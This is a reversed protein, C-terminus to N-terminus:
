DRAPPLAGRGSGLQALDQEMEAIRTGLRAARALAVAREQHRVAAALDGSRARAMGARMWPLIEWPRQRTAEEFLPAADDPRNSDMFANALRLRTVHDTPDADLRSRLITVAERLLRAGIEPDDAPSWSLAPFRRRADDIGKPFQAILYFGDRAPAVWIPRPQVGAASRLLRFFRRDTVHRVPTPADRAWLDVGQRVGYEFSASKEHAMVRKGERSPQRAVNADNLGLRDLTRFGTRYPILGAAGVAIHTDAPLAGSRVLAVLRDANPEMSELFLKLEERRTGVFHDTIGRLLATYLELVQRTGPLSGCRTVEPDLFRNVGATEVRYGPFGPLYRDPFQRGTERPLWVLGLLVLVAHAPVVWHANRLASATRWGSALLLFAFPFYLDLPRYEFHDGGIAAIGLAHPVVVAATVLPFPAPTRRVVLAFAPIWLWASYEVLFAAFYLAGMSWWSQGGVKAYYTNPLWAGYYALRLAFHAAVVAGWLGFRYLWTRYDLRGRAACWAAATGLATLSMLVADPRTLAALALLAASLPAGAPRGADIRECEVVLRLAGAVVLVELLRTELGSTSWVAVSRTAALLVPPALALWPPGGRATERLSYWAVLAWLGVTLLLTLGHASREPAAGVADAAALVV